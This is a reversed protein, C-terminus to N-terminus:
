CDYLTKSFCAINQVTPCVPGMPQLLILSDQAMYQRSDEIPDTNYNGILDTKASVLSLQTNGKNVFTDGGACDVGFLACIDGAYAESIDQLKWSITNTLSLYIM